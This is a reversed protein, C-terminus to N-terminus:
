RPASLLAQFEEDTPQQEYRPLHPDLADWPQASATWIDVVPQFWSPDDLSSANVVTFEPFRGAKAFIPSGCQPCFGRRVGHGTQGPVEHYKVEGKITLAATSVYVGPFYPSGSARQCDRCHCKWTIVPEAACAYRIAGCACGGSFPVPM